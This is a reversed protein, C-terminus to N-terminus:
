VGKVFDKITEIMYDLMPLTLAPYVGIFFVNNMVFDTNKLDGVVRCKINKYAPQKLLNGGFMLRTAVKHEELYKVIDRRTFPADERVALAFGFWSPESNSAAKPLIFYDELDKLGDYLYQWNKHRAEIFSPLKKLQAVGIAAQMDTVKLNYGIHSYIYKHDYGFPMDGFQQEFRKGCTDDKGGDCWCDRGWDRFSKVLRALLENGTAVLGGEGLTLHHPPFFSFTALDGFTGTKRGRYTTGLADCCDEILWLGYGVCFRVVQEMDVPSGLTHALVVARTKKSFAKELQMTDINYDSLNVDVFVPICMNQLIPNLTTPFGMATTVVEDGVRLQRYDLIPSTLCSLALLLASSGSNCLMCHSLGLYEAFDNEFKKAFRGSTLWFDLGSEVLNVLEEADFVKGAYPIYSKGAVFEKDPFAGKYYERVLGLIEGKIDEAM